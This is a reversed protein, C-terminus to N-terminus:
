SQVGAGTLARVLFVQAAPRGTPLGPPDPTGSHHPSHESSHERAPTGSARDPQSCPDEVPTNPAECALKPNGLDQEVRRGGGARDPGVPPGESGRARDIDWGGPGRQEWRGGNRKEVSSLATFGRGRGRSEKSTSM